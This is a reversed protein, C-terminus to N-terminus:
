LLRLLESRVRNMREDSIGFDMEKYSWASRSINHKDLVKHIVSYWNITDEPSVIDIVGYEGCYLETGEKRAKEIATSFLKEFYEEKIGSQNFHIRRNMDEDNKWHWYAGQHTFELPDYCHFNYVVRKDYPPDLAQVAEVGNNDYSGLLIITDPANRRIREICTRSIRKWNNLYEIDTVENLLEFAIHEPYKGFRKSIEDWLRYFREQYKESDFFGSESEGYSDFSYGATKHLDIVMNLNNKRCSEYARELRKFGDEKYETGDENELVNYDVPIRVHDLGWGAVTEFDKEQIFNNLRDESYDCQSLWGGFNIGRYFGMEKLM